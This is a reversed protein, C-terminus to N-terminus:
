LEAETRVGDAPKVEFASFLATRKTFTDLSHSIEGKNAATLLKYLASFTPYRHSFLFVFDIKRDILKSRNAHNATPAPVESLYAPDISQSQSSSNTSAYELEVFTRRM